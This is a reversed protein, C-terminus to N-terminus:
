IQCPCYSEFECCLNQLDICFRKLNRSIHREYRRVMTPSIKPPLVRIPSSYYLISLPLHPLNSSQNIENTFLGTTIRIPANVTIWIEGSFISGHLQIPFCIRCSINPSEMLSRSLSIFLRLFSRSSSFTDERRHCTKFKELEHM